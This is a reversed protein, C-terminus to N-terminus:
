ENRFIQVLIEGDVYHVTQPEDNQWKVLDLREGGAACIMGMALYLWTKGVCKPSYLIVAEHDHILNSILVKREPYERHEMEEWLSVHLKEKKVIEDKLFRKTVFPLKHKNGVKDLLKFEKGM